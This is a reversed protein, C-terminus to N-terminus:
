GAVRRRVTFPVVKDNIKLTYSGPGYMGELALYFRFPRIVRACVAGQPRRTQLQVEIIHGFREQSVDHLETCADPLSGKVLVEAPVQDNEAMESDFFAPRVQVTDLVAPYFFYRQGSEPPTVEVTRRDGQAGEEPRHGYAEEPAVAVSSARMCSALLVICSAILVPRILTPPLCM